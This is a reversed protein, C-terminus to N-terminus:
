HHAPSGYEDPLHSVERRTDRIWLGLCIVFLIGGMITWGWWITTGVLTLSIALSILFPLPTGPPLHIDEGAPPVGENEVALATVTGGPAPSESGAVFESAGTTEIDPEDSV